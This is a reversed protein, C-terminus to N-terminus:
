FLKGVVFSNAAITATGSTTKAFQLQVTGGTGGNVVIGKINLVGTQSTETNFSIGLTGSATMVDTGMAAASGSATTTGVATALMTAGAPFTIAVQIGANSSSGTRLNFEFNMTENSGISFSLGTVNTATTSTTTADSSLRATSEASINRYAGGNMSTTFRELGADFIIRGINGASLAASSGQQMELYADFSGISAAELTIFSTQIKSKVELKAAPSTTGIGVNGADDLRVRETGGTVLGLQDSGLSYMGTNADATFSYSPASVTGAIGLANGSSNVQFLDGSGVTFLSAPSPDGVGFNGGSKIRLAETGNTKIVLDQADSTGIFDTGPSTTANGALLWSSAAAGPAVWSLSGTGDTTLINGSSGDTLPLTYTTNTSSAGAQFIVSNSNIANFFKLQGTVGTATGIQANGHVHLLSAPATTGVGLNGSANIRVRESGGTVFGMLDAGADFMGTNPDGTFSFSPASVSGSIGLANGSSNVQFLDGSGVTFLAAPSADGVGMNGGSKVRVAEAGNTKIVLDQADSTGLFDTGPSTSGNGGLAWNSGGGGGAAWSLTGSGNTTLVYGSSGDTLPWTYTVSATSVGAKFIVANSNTSNFFKLQGTLSTASGIQANGNVHLLSAPNSTGVGINGAETIRMREATSSGLLPATEFYLDTGYGTTFNERAEAKITAGLGNFDLGDYGLFGFFGLGDGSTVTTPSAVTGGSKVAVFGGEGSGSTQAAFVAGNGSNVALHVAVLPASTGIGIEGTSLIRLRETGNTKLVLDKADTTGLFDTGPTTSTNGALLWSSSAASPAVWSLTGSGNTTLLNGSSGDALPLTYTTNASSVGSQLTVINGNTSNLFKLQGTTASATGLQATGSVHLLSAPSATGLGLRQTSNDWFLKSNNQSLDGSSNAFPVSGTTFTTAEVALNKYAGGNMSAMFREASADFILRGVNGSSLGASSGQQMQLYADFGGTSGAELTIYQTQITGKVELQSVPTTTGIGVNGGGSPVVLAYNNTAGSASLYAAINNLSAGSKIAKLAYGSGGGIAGTHEAWVGVTNTTTSPQLVELMNTSAAASGTTNIGINQSFILLPSSLLIGLAYIVRKFIQVM